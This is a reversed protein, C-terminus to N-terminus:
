LRRLCREVEAIDPRVAPDLAWCMMLIDWCADTLLSEAPKPPAKYRGTSLVIEAIINNNSRKGSYPTSGTIVYFAVSAFSYVDCAPTLVPNIEIGEHYAPRLLEPAAWRAAGSNESIYFSPGQLEAIVNSLGFDSLHAVDADMLVNVPSLDGHIVKQEHLYSLGHAIDLCINLRSRFNFNPRDALYEIITRQSMWQCVMAYCGHKEPHDIIGHLLVINPHELNGWIRMERRLAKQSM